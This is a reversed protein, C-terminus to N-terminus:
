MQFKWLWFQIRVFGTLVSSSQLNLTPLQSAKVIKDAKM